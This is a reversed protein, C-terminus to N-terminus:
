WILNRVDRPDKNKDQFQPDRFKALYTDIFEKFTSFEGKQNAFLSEAYMRFPREQLYHVGYVQEEGIKEMLYSMNNWRDIAPQDSVLQKFHGPLYKRVHTTMFQKFTVNQADQLSNYTIPQLKEWYKMDEQRMDEEDDDSGSGQNQGKKKNPNFGM